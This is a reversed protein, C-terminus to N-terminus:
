EVALAMKKRKKKKIRISSRLFRVAEIRMGILIKKMHSAYFRDPDYGSGGERSEKVEESSAKASSGRDCSKRSNLLADQM